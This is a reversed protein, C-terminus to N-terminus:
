PEKAGGFYPKAHGRAILESAYDIGAPLTLRGMYRGYKEKKDRFTTMLIKLGPALLTKAFDRALKGADTTLEPCDVGYVRIPQDRTWIGFGLDIDARLTDGDHVSTVVAHYEFM